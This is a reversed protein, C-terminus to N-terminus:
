HPTIRIPLVGFMYLMEWGLLLISVLVVMIAIIEGINLGGKDQEFRRAGLSLINLTAFGFVLAWLVNYIEERTTRLLFMAPLVSVALARVARAAYEAQGSVHGIAVVLASCHSAAAIPRLVSM